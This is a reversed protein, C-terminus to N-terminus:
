KNGDAHQTENAEAKLMQYEKEVLSQKVRTSSLLSGTVAVHIILGIGWGLISWKPWFYGAPTTFYYVACLFVNIILYIIVHWKITKKFFVRRKALKLLEDNTGKSIKEM